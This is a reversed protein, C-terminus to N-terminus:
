GSLEPSNDAIFIDGRKPSDNKKFRSEDKFFQINFMSYQVNIITYECDKILLHM